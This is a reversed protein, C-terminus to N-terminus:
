RRLSVRCWRCFPTITEESRHENDFTGSCKRCRFETSALAELDHAKKIKQVRIAVGRADFDVGSKVLVGCLWNIVSLSDVLAEKLRIRELLLMGEQNLM